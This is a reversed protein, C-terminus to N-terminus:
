LWTGAMKQSQITCHHWFRAGSSVLVLDAYCMLRFDACSKQLRNIAGTEPVYTM